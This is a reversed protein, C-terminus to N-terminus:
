KNLCFLAAFSKYGLVRRPKFGGCNLSPRQKKGQGGRCGVWQQFSKPVGFSDAVVVATAEPLEHLDVEVLLYLTAAALQQLPWDATEILQFSSLVWIKDEQRFDEYEGQTHLM